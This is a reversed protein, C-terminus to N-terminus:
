RIKEWDKCPGKQVSKPIYEMFRKFKKKSLGPCKLYSRTCMCWVKTVPTSPEEPFSVQQTTELAKLKINETFRAEGRWAVVGGAM